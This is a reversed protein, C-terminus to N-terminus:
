VSKTQRDYIDQNVSAKRRGRWVLGCFGFVIASGVVGSSLLGIGYDRPQQFAHQADADQLFAVLASIEDTTLPEDAYAAQM